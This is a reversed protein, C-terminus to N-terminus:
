ETGLSEDPPETRQSKEKARRLAAEYDFPVTKQRKVGSWDPKSQNKGAARARELTAEYSFANEM